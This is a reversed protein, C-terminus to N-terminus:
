RSAPEVIMLRHPPVAGVPVVRAAASWTGVPLIGGGVAVAAVTRDGQEFVLLNGPHSFSPERLVPSGVQKEVDAASVGVTFVHVADWPEPLAALARLDIEGGYLVLQAVRADLRDDFRYGQDPPGLGCGALLASLVIAVVTRVGTTM